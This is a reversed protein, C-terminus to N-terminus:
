KRGAVPLGANSKEYLDNIKAICKSFVKLNEFRVNVKRCCCIQGGVIRSFKTDYHTAFFFM